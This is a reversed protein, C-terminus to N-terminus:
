ALPRLHRAPKPVNSPRRFTPRRRAPKPVHRLAGSLLTPRRRAPKPVYNSAGCHLDTVHLNPVNKSAGCHLDTVHLNPVIKSAGCHLVPSVHLNPVNKSTPATNCPTHRIHMYTCTCNISPLVCIHPTILQQGANRRPALSPM